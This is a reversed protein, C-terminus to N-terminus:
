YIKPTVIDRDLQKNIINNRNFSHQINNGWILLFVGIAVYFNSNYGIIYIGICGLVSGLIQLVIKNM